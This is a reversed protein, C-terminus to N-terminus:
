KKVDRENRKARASKIYLDAIVLMSAGFLVEFLILMRV